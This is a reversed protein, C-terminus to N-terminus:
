IGTRVHTAYFIFRGVIEGVLVLLSAIYIPRGLALADINGKIYRYATVALLTVGIVGVVLRTVLLPHFLETYLRYSAVGTADGTKLVTLLSEFQFLISIFVVLAAGSLVPLVQRMVDGTILSQLRNEMHAIHIDMTMITLAATIGLLLLASLFLTYTLPTYWAAQSPLLYCNAMCYIAALGAIVGSWGLALKLTHRRPVRAQIIWLATISLWCLVTFFVERSLWSRNLNSVALFALQPQSLHFFSGVMAVSITLFCVAIPNLTFTQLQDDTYRGRLVTRLTWILLLVGVTLQMLITYVPLAWERLNMM